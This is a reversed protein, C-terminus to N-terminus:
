SRLAEALRRRGLAQAADDEIWVLNQALIGDRGAVQRARVDLAEWARVARVLVFVLVCGEDLDKM